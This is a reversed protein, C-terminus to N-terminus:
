AAPAFPHIYPIKTFESQDAANGTLHFRAGTDFYADAIIRGDGLRSGPAQRQSRGIHKHLVYVEVEGQAIRYRQASFRKRYIKGIDSGHSSFRSMKEEGHRDRVKCGQFKNIIKYASRQAYGILEANRENTAIGAGGLPPNDNGYGDDPFL